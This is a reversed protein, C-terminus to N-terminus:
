HKNLILDSSEKINTQMLYSKNISIHQGQLSDHSLLHRQVTCHM